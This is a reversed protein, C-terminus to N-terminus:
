PSCRRADRRRVDAGRERGRIRRQLRCDAFLGGHDAHQKARHCLDRQACPPLHSPTSRPRFMPATPGRVMPPAAPIGSERTAATTRETSSFSRTPPTPPTNSRQRLSPKFIQNATILWRGRQPRIPMSFLPTPVSALLVADKAETTGPVSAKVFASPDNDPIKAFDAPLDTSASSWPGDLSTARFWRGATLFYHKGDGANYFVVAETNSMRLLSTGPIPSYKPEGQTLILEAPETTVLCQPPNKEPKGPMRQRVDAWNDDNPLSSMGAPLTTTSDWPGKILDRTTLWSEQNLLYYRQTVADYFIDWNTNAVFM